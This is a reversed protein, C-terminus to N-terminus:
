RAMFRMMKMPRIGPTQEQIQISVAKKGLEELAHRYHTELEDGNKALLSPGSYEPPVASPQGGM